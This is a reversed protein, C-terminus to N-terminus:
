TVTYFTSSPKQNNYSATIYSTSRAVASLRPEDILGNWPDGSAGIGSGGIGLADTVNDATGTTSRPTGTSAGNVFLDLTSGDWRGVVHYWTSLSLGSAGTVTRFVNSGQTFCVSPTGTTVDTRLQYGRVTSHAKAIISRNGSFNNANVWAELTFATTLRVSAVDAAYLANVSTSVSLCPGAVGTGSSATSSGNGLTNGNSTSDRRQQTSYGAGGLHYVAHFNSDWVGTMNSQDTTIGADGWGLYIVTDTTHSLTPIRVWAVLEGTAGDWTEVEFDLPTTKAADSYFVIDYGSANQVEGGNAVTKLATLTEHFLFPFDTVDASGCQTHDITITATGPGLVVGSANGLLGRFIIGAM